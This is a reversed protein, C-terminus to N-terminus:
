SCVQDKVPGYRPIGHLHGLQARDHSVNVCRGHGHRVFEEPSSRLKCEEVWSRKKLEDVEELLDTVPNALPLLYTMNGDTHSIM